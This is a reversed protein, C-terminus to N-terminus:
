LPLALVAVLQGVCWAMPAIAVVGWLRASWTRPLWLLTCLAVLLELGAQVPHTSAMPVHGDFSLLLQQSAGGRLALGALFAATVGAFVDSANRGWYALAAVLPVVGVAIALWFFIFPTHGYGLVVQSWAYYALTMLVFFGGANLAAQAPGRSTRAAIAMPLVWLASYTAADGAWSGYLDAVKALVGVLSGAGAWLVSSLAPGQRSTRTDTTGKEMGAGGIGSLQGKATSM